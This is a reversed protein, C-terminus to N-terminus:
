VASRVPLMVCRCPMLPCLHSVRPSAQPAQTVSECHEWSVADRSCPVSLCKCLPELRRPHQSPHRTPLSAQCASAGPRPPPPPLPAVGVRGARCHGVDPLACPAMHAELHLAARSASSGQPTLQNLRSMLRTAISPDDTVNPPGRGAWCSQQACGLTYPM